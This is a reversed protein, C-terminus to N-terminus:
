IILQNNPDEAMARKAFFCARQLDTKVISMNRGEPIMTELSNLLVTFVKAIELAKGKGEDNLMHVDFLEHTKM